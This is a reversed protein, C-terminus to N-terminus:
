RVNLRKMEAKWEDDTMDRASKGDGSKPTPTQTTSTTTKKETESEAKFLTPKAKKFAAIAEAVGTVVGKSDVKIGADAANLLSLTDLDLLGAAQAEAELKIRTLMSTGEGRATNVADVIKAEYEAKVAAVAAERAQVEAALKGQLDRIGQRKQANEARLRKEYRTPTRWGDKGDRRESVVDDDDDEDDDNTTTTQVPPTTKAPPTGTGTGNEPERLIGGDILKLLWNPM